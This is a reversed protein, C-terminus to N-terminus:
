RVDEGDAELRLRPDAWHCGLDALLSALTVLVAVMATDAMVLPYDRTLIAQFAILGLGPWSFVKEVVVAGGFLGPLSIGALTLL